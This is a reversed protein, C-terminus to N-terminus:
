PRAPSTTGPGYHSWLWRHVAQRRVVAQGGPVAVPEGGLEGPLALAATVARLAELGVVLAKLAELGVVLAKPLKPQLLGRVLAKAHGTEVVRWAGGREVLLRHPDLLCRSTQVIRPAATQLSCDLRGAESRVVVVASPAGGEAWGAREGWRGIDGALLADDWFAGWSSSEVLRGGDLV